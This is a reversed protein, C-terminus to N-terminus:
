SRLSQNFKGFNMIRSEKTAEAYGKKFEEKMQLTNWVEPANEKINKVISLGISYLAETGKFVAYFPLLILGIAFFGATEVGKLIAQGIKVLDDKGSKIFADAMVKAEGAREAVYTKSHQYSKKYEEWKNKLPEIIRKSINNGVTNVIEQYKDGAANKLQELNNKLETWMNKMREAFKGPASIVWNYADKVYQEVKSALDTILKKAQQGLEVGKDWLWNAGSVVKGAATGVAGALKNLGKAGSKLTDWFGELLLEADKKGNKETILHYQQNLKELVVNMKHTITSLENRLELRTM